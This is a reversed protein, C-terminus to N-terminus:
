MVVVIHDRLIDRYKAILKDYESRESTQVDCTILVITDTKEFGNSYKFYKEEQPYATLFLLNFLLIFHIRM